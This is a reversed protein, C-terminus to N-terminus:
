RWREAMLRSTSHGPVSGVVLSQQVTPSLAWRHGSNLGHLDGSDAHVHRPEEASQSGVDGSETFGLYVHGVSLRM